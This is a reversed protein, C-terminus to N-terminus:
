CRRSGRGEMPHDHGFVHTRVSELREIQELALAEADLVMMQRGVALDIGELLLM